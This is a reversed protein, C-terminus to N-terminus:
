HPWSALAAVYEPKMDKYPLALSEVVWVFFNISKEKLSKCFTSNQNIEKQDDLKERTSHNGFLYESQLIKLNFSM